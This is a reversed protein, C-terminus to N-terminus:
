HVSSLLTQLTAKPKAQDALGAGTGGARREEGAGGALREEAGGVTSPTQCVGHGAEASTM